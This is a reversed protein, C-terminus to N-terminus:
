LVATIKAATLDGIKASELNDIVSCVVKTTEEIRAEHYELADAVRHSALEAVKREAEFLKLEEAFAWKIVSRVFNKIM